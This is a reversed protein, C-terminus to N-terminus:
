VQTAVLPAVLAADGAIRLQRGSDFDIFLLGV